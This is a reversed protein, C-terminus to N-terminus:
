DVTLHVSDGRRLKRFQDKFGAFAAEPAEYGGDTWDHGAFSLLAWQAVEAYRVKDDAGLTTDPLRRLQFVRGDHHRFLDCDCLSDEQEASRVLEVRVDM